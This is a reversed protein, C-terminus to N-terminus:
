INQYFYLILKILIINDQKKNKNEQELSKSLIDIKKQSKSHKIDKKIEEENEKENNKENENENEKENKVIINDSSKFSSFKLKQKKLFKSNKNKPSISNM